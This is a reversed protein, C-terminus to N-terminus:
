IFFFFSLSNDFMKQLYTDKLRLVNAFLIQEWEHKDQKTIEKPSFKM